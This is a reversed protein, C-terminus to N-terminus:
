MNRHRLRIQGAKVAGKGGPMRQGSVRGTRFGHGSLTPYTYTAESQHGPRCQPQGEPFPNTFEAAVSIWARYPPSEVLAVAVGHPRITRSSGIEVLQDSAQSAAARASRAQSSAAHGVQGMRLPWTIDIGVSESICVSVFQEAERVELHGAGYGNPCHTESGARHM